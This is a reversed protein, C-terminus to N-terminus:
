GDRAARAARREARVEDRAARIEAELVAEGDGSRAFGASFAAAHAEMRERWAALEAATMGARLAPTAVASGRRGKLWTKRIAERLLDSRSRGIEQGLEDLAALDEADLNVTVEVLRRRAPKRGPRRRANVAENM